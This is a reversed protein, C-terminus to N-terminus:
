FQYGISLKLGYVEPDAEITHQASTGDTSAASKLTLDDYDTLNAAIKLLIGSELHHKFGLEYTVGDIDKNGYTAGTGLSENTELTVHSYAVGAYFGGFFGPTELYARWHDKLEAQAKQTVLTMTGEADTMHNRKKENAGLEASAPVYSTGITWGTEMIDYQIYVEPIGAVSKESGTTKVGTSKLTESGSTKLLAGTGSIGLGFGANASTTLVGFMFAFTAVLAIARRKFM